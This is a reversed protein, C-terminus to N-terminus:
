DDPNLKKLKDKPVEKIKAKGILFDMVKEETMQFRLRSRNEPKSYFAKIKELEIGSQKAYADIKVDYEADTSQLNEKKAIEGILLSSRIVFEASKEFDADWKKKYDEFQDHPMGQSEMRHHVDDILVRKQEEVMSRPVEVPNKEVLTHLVRNKVDDKISMM